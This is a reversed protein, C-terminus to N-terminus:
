PHTLSRIIALVFNVVAQLWSRTVPRPRPTPQPAPPVPVPQPTPPKPPPGPAPTPAPAPSPPGAVPPPTPAPLPHAAASAAALAARTLPGVVGDADLGSARQFNRVANSTDDGFDGDAGYSGVDYGLDVLKAQVDQVDPGQLHPDQVELDRPGASPAPAPPAAAAGSGYDLWPILAAGSWGRNLASDIGSGHVGIGWAPTELCTGDGLSLAIHGADGWGQLGRDPGMFLYAGRTQVGVDPDLENGYGYCWAAFASSVTPLPHGDPDTDGYGVAQLGERQWGSCDDGPDSPDDVMRRQDGNFYPRGQRAALANILDEVHAM